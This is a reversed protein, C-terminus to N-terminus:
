IRSANTARLLAGSALRNRFNKQARVHHQRPEAFRAAAVGWAHRNAGDVQRQLELNTSLHTSIQVQRDTLVRGIACWRRIQTRAAEADEPGTWDLKAAAIRRSTPGGLGGISVAGVVWACPGFGAGKVGM